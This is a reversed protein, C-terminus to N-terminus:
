SFVLRAGPVALWDLTWASRGWGEPRWASAAGAARLDDKNAVLLAPGRVRCGSSGPGDGWLSRRPSSDASWNTLLGDM